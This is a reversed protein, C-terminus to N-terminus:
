ASFCFMTGIQTFPLFLKANKVASLDEKELRFFTYLFRKKGKELFM